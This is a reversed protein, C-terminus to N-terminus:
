EFRLTNQQQEVPKEEIKDEAVTHTKTAVTLVVERTIYAATRKCQEIESFNRQPRVIPTPLPRLKRSVPKEESAAASPEEAPASPTANADNSAPEDASPQVEEASNKITVIEGDANFGTVVLIIEIEGENIDPKESVGWIVNVSNEPADETKAHHQVRGVVRHAESLSLDKVDRVSINILANKAGRISTKGFLPSSVMDDVIKEAREKGSGSAVSMLATGSNQLVGKVDSFDVNILNTKHTIIEAIGKAAFAAVDNARDLGEKAPLDGYLKNIADNSLVIMADVHKRLKEIGEKAQKRRKPGEYDSPTTVIAVTLIGMSQALEAIVPTAGTGTGAGMGAVLFLMNTKRAKLLEEVSDLSAKAYKEGAEATNGAGLGTGILIRNEEPISLKNLDDKDTNCAALNVGEIRLDYMHAISNCGAGGIGMAMIEAETGKVSPRREARDGINREEM